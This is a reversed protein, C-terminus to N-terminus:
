TSLLLYRRGMDPHIAAAVASMFHLEYYKTHCNNSIRALKKKQQNRKHLIHASAVGLDTDFGLAESDCFAQV